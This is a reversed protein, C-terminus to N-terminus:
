YTTLLMSSISSVTVAVYKAGTSSSDSRESPCKILFFLHSVFDLFCIFLVQRMLKAFPHLFGRLEDLHSAGGVHLIHLGLKLLPITASSSSACPLLSPSVSHTLLLYEVFWLWGVSVQRYHLM